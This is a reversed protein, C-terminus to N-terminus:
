DEEREQQRFAKCTVIFSKVSPVKDGLLTEALSVQKATSYLMTMAQLHTQTICPEATSAIRAMFADWSGPKRSNLHEKFKFCYVIKHIRIMSSVWARSRCLKEALQKSATSDVPGGFAMWLDHVFDITEKPTLKEKPESEALQLLKIDKPDRPAVM